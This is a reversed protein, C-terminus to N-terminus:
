RRPRPPLRLLQMWLVVYAYGLAWGAVVDSPHHVNLAVRGFGVALVILVGAAIAVRKAVAGLMPLLVVLLAVVGVVSALAHGSPFSTSSAPSLATLPRPRDALNKAVQIIVGSLQVTLILFVATRVNRQVLAVVIVAAAIVRLGTPGFVTCVVEWCRVWLPHKIGIEYLAALSSSDVGDFWGQRYGLWLVAYGAVAILASVPLILRRLNGTSM